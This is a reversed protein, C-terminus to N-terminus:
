QSLVKRLNIVIARVRGIAAVVATVALLIPTGDIAAVGSSCLYPTRWRISRSTLNVWVKSPPLNIIGIVWITVRSIGM